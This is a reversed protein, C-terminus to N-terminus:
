VSECPPVEVIVIAVLAPSKGRHSSFTDSMSFSSNEILSPRYLGVDAALSYHQNTSLHWVPFCTDLMSFSTKLCNTPLHKLKWDCLYLMLARMQCKPRLAQQRTKIWHKLFYECMCLVLMFTTPRNCKIYLRYDTLWGAVRNCKWIAYCIDIFNYVHM